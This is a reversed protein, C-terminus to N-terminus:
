SRQLLPVDAGASRVALTDDRSWEVHRRMAEAADDSKRRQLAQAIERHQRVITELRENRASEIPPWTTLLGRHADRAVRALVVNGSGDGITGHFARDLAVFDGIALQGDASAALREEATAALLRITELTSQPARTACLRATQMEICLRAEYLNRILEVPLRESQMSEQVLLDLFRWDAMANVVTRKGHQVHVLGAAALAQLTERAVTRSVGYDRVVEDGSPFPQGEAMRGSVIERALTTALREHM